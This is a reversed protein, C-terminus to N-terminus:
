LLKEIDNVKSKQNSGKRRYFHSYFYVEALKENTEENSQRSKDNWEDKGWNEDNELNEMKEKMETKERELCEVKSKLENAIQDKEEIQEM